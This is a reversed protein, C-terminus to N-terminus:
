HYQLASTYLLCSGPIIHTAGDVSNDPRINFTWIAYKTNDSDRICMEPIIHTAGDVSNDPKVNFTWVADKTNDYVSTARVTLTLHTYSVARM